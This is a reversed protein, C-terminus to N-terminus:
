PSVRWTRRFEILDAVKFIMRGDPREESPFRGEKAWKRITNHSAGLIAQAGYPSVEGSTDASAGLMRAAEAPSITM